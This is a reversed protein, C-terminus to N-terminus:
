NEDKFYRKAFKIRRQLTFPSVNKNQETGGDGYLNEGIFIVFAAAGVIFGPWFLLKGFTVELISGVIIGPIISLALVITWIFVRIAIDLIGM